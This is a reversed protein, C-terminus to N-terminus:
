QKEEYCVDNLLNETTFHRELHPNDLKFQDYGTYSFVYEKIEGTEINKFDYRPMYEEDNLLNEIITPLRDYRYGEIVVTHYSNGDTGKQKGLETINKDLGSKKIMHHALSKYKHYQDPNPTQIKIRHGKSLHIQADDHIIKLTHGLSKRDIPATEGPATANHHIHYEIEKDSNMLKVVSHGHEKMHDSQLVATHGTYLRGRSHKNIDNEFDKDHLVEFKADLSETLFDFDSFSLM